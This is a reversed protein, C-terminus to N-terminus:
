IVVEIELLQIVNFIKNAITVKDSGAFLLGILSLGNKTEKVVASGSDGPASFKQPKHDILIQDVFYAIHGEKDIQVQCEYDVARVLGETVGTTRGSKMVSEGPKVTDVSIIHGLELLESDTINNRLKAIACDVKNEPMEGFVEIGYKFRFKSGVAQALFNLIHTVARSYSCDATKIPVFKLLEAVKDELKGGDYPGPQLIADGIKGKNVNALVHNCSVLVLEGKHYALFGPTGATIDKHGISVGMKFPRYRKTRDILELKEAVELFTIDGVEMVDTPINEVERPVVDQPKLQDLPLKKRVTIVLGEGTIQGKRVLLGRGMGLVNKKKYLAKKAEKSIM